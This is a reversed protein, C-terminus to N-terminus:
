SLSLIHPSRVRHLYATGLLLQRAWQKLIPVSLKVHDRNELLGALDHDMYPFVMFTKDRKMKSSDGEEYAIDVCPVINPHDLSKLLRIERLSTIPM